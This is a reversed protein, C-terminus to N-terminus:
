FRYGVRLGYQRPAGYTFSNNGDLLQGVPYQEDGLNTGYAEATWSDGARLILQAGLLGRSPLRDTTSSYTLGVFQSDMYAYNVRPTLSVSTGLGIEYEVNANFTWEPSYLNPGGPNNTLYPTYDFCGPPTQGIGCQPGVTGVTGPPMLHTNVVPGPSPLSSHVYAVGGDLRWGGVEAQLTAEFGYIDATALNAVNQSGNTLNINQFQFDDYKYYFGGIQTRVHDDALSGKWGAEFDLVTEPVFNAVPSTFGGPKYGRAVFAYLLNDDDPKYDLSIKGTVRSDSESGGLDAVQCGNKPAVPLGIFGCAVAPVNLAVFGNGDGDFASYRTGIGLQWKQAFRINVQGFVGTTKKNAPTTIYLPPGGPGTAGTEDIDVNIKDDQYYAGAVWDYAGSTDSIVNIEESRTVQGVRSDWVLQPAFPTNSATGDFDQVNHFRKDQYGSLSRVVTGNAFEYRLELSSLLGTEHYKTPTDYSLSFPNDPADASYATGPIAKGTFGGSNRDTYEVKALAQFNGPQFLIGLRGSQEDLKGADTTVPGISSYFSDRSTSKGAIRFGFVGNVPLNVAAELDTQSYNAAGVRFYGGISDLEPNETNIFIAGGTSNSGVLTGQPGRLIEVNRIDYMSNNSVIPPQFIGDVYIAVGNAVNALGSALGVGRINVANTNGNNGVSVSPSAFQLDALSIVGKGSLDSGKIATIAIPISQLNESRRQATVMIEDLENAEVGNPAPTEAAYASTTIGLSVAVFISVSNRNM